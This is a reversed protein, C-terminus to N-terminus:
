TGIMRAAKHHLLFPRTTATNKATNSIELWIKTLASTTVALSLRRAMMNMAMAKTTAVNLSVIAFACALAAWKFATRRAIRFTLWSMTLSSSRSRMIALTHSCRMPVLPYWLAHIARTSSSQLKTVAASAPSPPRKTGTTSIIFRPPNVSHPALASSCGTTTTVSSTAESHSLQGRASAQGVRTHM